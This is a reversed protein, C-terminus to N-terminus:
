SKSLLSRAFFAVNQPREALRRMLYGYWEDGYPTYVRMTAGSEALRLQEDPRVGYLMQYEFSDPGRDVRGALMGAIRVLRPDHTAVMPYGAGNMLVRLCRVYSRDVESRTQYAVSEPEQYAGKCLRVRSGASALDKCDAETRRLQSQLVAGTEPFDQRVAALVDLTSDTTTHGEMDVTVTTGADRAAQCISRANDLAIAEGDPGLAQGLASLKVSVEAAPTLGADNLAGLLERYADVSDAAQQKDLIDEGLRDLSVQLGQGALESSVKVADEAAQGAVFRTVVGSSLPMTTVLQEVRSSGALALLSARLM